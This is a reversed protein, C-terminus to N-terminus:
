EEVVVPAGAAEAMAEGGEFEPRRGRGRGGRTRRRPTADDEAAEAVPAAEVVAPAPAPVPTPAPVPAPRAPAATLFAPLGLHDGDGVAADDTRRVPRDTRPPRPGDFRGADRGGEPREPREAREPRDPRPANRFGRGRSREGRPREERPREPRGEAPLEDIFPQPADAPMFGDDSPQAELDLTRREPRPESRELREAREPREPREAREFREGRDGREPRETWTRPEARQEVRPEVITEDLDEEDDDSQIDSRVVPMPQPLMAQAAAIIRYYHEAHQLYNEALVPDGSSHADRALSVYKEAIHLATGRIKVDPGTSEYTRSLPNPGKRGNNGGGGGGGGSGGGSGGRGRMRKNSNGQRM